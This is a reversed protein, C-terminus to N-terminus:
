NIKGGMEVIEQSANKSATFGFFILPQRIKRKKSALLKIEKTKRSVIKFKKLFDLDIIFGSLKIDCFDDTHLEEKCVKRKSKFGFKPLRIYLRAQGGEFGVKHYGGSRAKQGKHGRGSTKGLGSGSGRGVRKKRKGVSCNVLSNLLM